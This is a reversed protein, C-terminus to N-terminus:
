FAFACRVDALHFLELDEIPDANEKVVDIPLRTVPDFTGYVKKVLMM